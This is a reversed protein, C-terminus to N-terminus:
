GVASHGASVLEPERPASPQPAQGHASQPSVVRQQKLMHVKIEREAVTARRQAVAYGYGILAIDCLVHLPLFMAGFALVGLLTLFALSALGVLIQSRRRAADVASRPPGLDATRVPLSVTMAPRNPSLSRQISLSGRDRNVSRSRGMSATALRGTSGFSSSGFSSSSSRGDRWWFYLYVGWASVLALLTLTTTM